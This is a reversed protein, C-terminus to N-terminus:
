RTNKISNYITNNQFKLKLINTICLFKTSKLTNPVKSFESILELLKKKRSERPKEVSVIINDIFLSLRMKYASYSNIKITESFKGSGGACHQVSTTVASVRLNNKM